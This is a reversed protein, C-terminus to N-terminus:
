IKLSYRQPKQKDLLILLGQETLQQLLKAARYESVNILAAYRKLTISEHQKLFQILGKVRPSELLTKDLENDSFVLHNTPVSKDRSRVYITRNGREDLAYHPKSTSELVQIQLVIKDEWTVARYKIELSPVVLWDCAKALKSVEELESKIGMVTGNDAIGVLLYGGSTNAFAVLTRAIKYAHSLTLKRELRLGESQPLLETFSQVFLANQSAFSLLSRVLRALIRRM